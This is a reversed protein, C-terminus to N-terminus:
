PCQTAPTNHLNSSNVLQIVRYATEVFFASSEAFFPSLEITPWSKSRSFRGLMMMRTREVLRMETLNHGEWHWACGIAIGNTMTLDRTSSATNMMPCILLHQMTQRIDCDCTVTENSYGWKSMNVRSRGVYLGLHRLTSM